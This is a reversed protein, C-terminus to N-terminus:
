LNLLLVISAPIAVLLLLSDVIRSVYCEEGKRSCLKCDTNQKWNYSCCIFVLVCAMKLTKAEVNDFM